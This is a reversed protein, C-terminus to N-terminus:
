CARTASVKDKPSTTGRDGGWLLSQQEGLHNSLCEAPCTPLWLGKHGRGPPSEDQNRQKELGMAEQGFEDVVNLYSICLLVQTDAAAEQIYTPNMKLAQLPYAWAPDTCM